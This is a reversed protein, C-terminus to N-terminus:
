SNLINKMKRIFTYMDDTSRESTDVASVFAVQPSGTVSVPLSDVWSMFDEKFPVKKKVLDMKNLVIMFKKEVLSQSYKQLEEHLRIFQEQPSLLANDMRSADHLSNGTLAYAGHADLVYVIATTREVHRLFRHGLGRNEHAGQVLGPVDSVTFSDLGISVSGLQPTVTTFAYSGVRPTASSIKKLLSSKGVNPFGVLSVDSIMKMELELRVSEGFTSSSAAKQNVRHRRSVFGANGQGGIGGRAVIVSDGDNVLDKLTEYQPVHGHREAIEDDADDADLHICLPWINMKWIDQDQTDSDNRETNEPDLSSTKPDSIPTDPRVIRHKRQRNDREVYRRVHTGLPVLYVGDIGKRGHKKKSSGNGGPRSVLLQPLGVLSKVRRSAKLVVDGGDGGDGGDPQMKRTRTRTTRVSACGQGGHGARAQVIVRDVFARKSSTGEGTFRQEAESRAGRDNWTDSTTTSLYGISEGCTVRDGFLIRRSGQCRLGNWAVESRQVLLSLLRM